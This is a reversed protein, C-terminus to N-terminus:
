KKCRKIEKFESILNTEDVNPKYHIFALPTYLNSCITADHELWGQEHFYIEDFTDDWKEELGAYICYVDPEHLKVYESLAEIDLCYQHFSEFISSM